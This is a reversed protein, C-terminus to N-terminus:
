HRAKRRVLVVVGAVSFAVVPLMVLVVTWATAAAATRVDEDIADQHMVKLSLGVPEVETGMSRLVSLLADSNGYTDSQLMANSVMKVSGVACVYAVKTAYTYGSGEGILTEENTITMLSFPTNSYVIPNGEADTLREGDKVAYATANDGTRFLDYMHRLYGNSTYTAYTYPSIKNEEDKPQYTVRYPDSYRIGIADAFVVKPSAGFERLDATWASSPANTEYQGILNTGASKADLSDVLDVIQYTGDGDYREFAIGWEELFEELVPFEPTNADAFIMYSYSKELFEQLKKIETRADPDKYNATFDKTPDSPDLTIILRCNEPIEETALNINQVEYGVSELLKRFESYDSGEAATDPEGHNTTFCCIPKEAETVALIYSVFNKEGHYAWPTSSGYESYVYYSRATTVRYESGSAIIINSQYIQSYSNTRYADVSSPNLWVNTTKVHITDPFAKQLALATYYVNRMTADDVLMDPDSCFILDVSVPKENRKARLENNLKISQELQYVTEEMLTYMTTTQQEHSGESTMAYYSRPTMDLFIHKSSFLATAGVNLLLVAVLVIAVLGVSFSGHRLKQINKNFLKM